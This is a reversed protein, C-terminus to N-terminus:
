RLRAVSRAHEVSRLADIESREPRVLVAEGAVAGEDLVGM